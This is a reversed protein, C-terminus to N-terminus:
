RWIHRYGLFQANPIPCFGEPLSFPSMNFPFPFIGFREGKGRGGVEALLRNYQGVLFYITEGDEEILSLLEVQCEFM